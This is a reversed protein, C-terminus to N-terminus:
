KVAEVFYAVPINWNRGDATLFLLESGFRGRFTAGVQGSITGIVTYTQGKILDAANTMYTTHAGRLGRDIPPASFGLFDEGGLAGV